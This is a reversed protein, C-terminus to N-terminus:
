DCASMGQEINRQACRHTNHKVSPTSIMSTPCLRVCCRVDDRLLILYRSVYQWPLMYIPSTSTSGYNHLTRIPRGDAVTHTITKTTNNYTYTYTLTQACVTKNIALKIKYTRQKIEDTPILAWVKGIALVNGHRNCQAIAVENRQLQQKIPRLKTTKQTTQVHQIDAIHSTNKKRKIGSGIRRV